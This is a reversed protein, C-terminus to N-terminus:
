ELKSLCATARAVLGRRLIFSLQQKSKYLLPHQRTNINRKYEKRKILEEKEEGRLLFRTPPDEFPKKWYAPAV